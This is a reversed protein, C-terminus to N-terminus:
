SFSWYISGLCVNSFKINCLKVGFIVLIKGMERIECWINLKESWFLM